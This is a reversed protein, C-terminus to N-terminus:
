KYDITSDDDKKIGKKKKIATIIFYAVIYVVVGILLGIIFQIM